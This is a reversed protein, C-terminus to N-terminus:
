KTAGSTTEDRQKSKFFPELIRRQEDTMQPGDDDRVAAETVNERAVASVARYPNNRGGGEVRGERELHALADDISQHGKKPLLARVGRVGKVGGAQLLALYLAEADAEIRKARKAERKAEREDDSPTTPGVVEEFSATEHNLRLRFTIKQGLRNKALEADVLGGEGAVSRLTLAVSAAYEISGSEKFSALGAANDASGGRYFARAMESTAIVLHGRKAAAKAVRVTASVRELPSPASAGENTRATQTSDVVLVGPCGTAEARRTLADVVQELVAEEQDQDVFLLRDSRVVDALGSKAWSEGEELDGRAFGELQGWRILLGDAEEDAALVAVAHGRRFYHWAFQIAISTKGAGPAGGIVFFRGPLLGGRMAHDLSRFGTPLREGLTGLREARTAATMWRADPTTASATTERSADGEDDVHVPAAPPVASEHGQGSDDFFPADADIPFDVEVLPIPEDNLLYDAADKRKGGDAPSM